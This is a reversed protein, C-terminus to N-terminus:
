AESPTEEKPFEGTVFFGAKENAAVVDFRQSIALLQGYIENDIWRVAAQARDAFFIAEKM